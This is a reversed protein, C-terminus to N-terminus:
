LVKVLNCYKRWWNCLRAQNKFTEAAFGAFDPLLSLKSPDLFVWRTEEKAEKKCVKKRSLAKWCLMARPAMLCLMRDGAHPNPPGSLSIFILSVNVHLCIHPSFVRLIFPYDLLKEVKSWNLKTDKGPTDFSSSVSDGSSSPVWLSWQTWSKLSHGMCSRVWSRAM